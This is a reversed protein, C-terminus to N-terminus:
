VLDSLDAAKWGPPKSIDNEGRHTTGIVKKMNAIHVRRWAEDFDFGQLYATGLVVYALDVLADLQKVKDHDRYADQYEGLEEGMFRMRFLYLDLPLERPPGDYGRGFHEYFERIDNMMDLEGYNRDDFKNNM